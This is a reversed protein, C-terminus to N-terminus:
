VGNLSQLLEKLNFLQLRTLLDQNPLHQQQHQEMVEMDAMIIEMDLLQSM